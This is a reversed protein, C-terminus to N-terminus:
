CGEWIADEDYIVELGINHKPYDQYHKELQENIFDTKTEYSDSYYSNFEFYRGSYHIEKKNEDLFVVNRGTCGCECGYGASEVTIYKAGVPLEYRDVFKVM